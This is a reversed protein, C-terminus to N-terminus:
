KRLRSDQKVVGILNNVYIERLKRIDAIIERRLTEFKTRFKESGTKKAKAHTANKRRITRRIEPTLWPISIVSRSTDVSSIFQTTRLENLGPTGKIPCLCVSYGRIHRRLVDPAM